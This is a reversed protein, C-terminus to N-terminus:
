FIQKLKGDVAKWRAKLDEINEVPNKDTYACEFMREFLVALEAAGLKNKEVLQKFVPHTTNFILVFPDTEFFVMPFDEGLDMPRAGKITVVNDKTNDVDIPINTNDISPLDEIPLIIEPSNLIVDPTEITIQPSVVEIETEKEFVEVNEPPTEEEVPVDVEIEQDIPHELHMNYGGDPETHILDTDKPFVIDIASGEVKMGVSVIPQDTRNGPSGGAPLFFVLSTGTHFPGIRFPFPRVPHVCEPYSPQGFDGDM